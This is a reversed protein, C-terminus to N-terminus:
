HNYVEVGKLLGNGVPSRLLVDYLLDVEGALLKKMSDSFSDCPVYKIDWGAYIRITEIYEYAYGSRRGFSDTRNFSSEYWGVRILKEEPRTEAVSEPLVATILAFCLLAAAFRIIRKERLRGPMKLSIRMGRRM